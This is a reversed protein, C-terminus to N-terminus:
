KTSRRAVIENAYRVMQDHGLIAKRWALPIAEYGYHAGLLGGAIAAYTDTDGGVRVAMEIGEKFSKAHKLVYFAVYLSFEATGRMPWAGPDIPHVHRDRLMSMIRITLEDNLVAADIWAIDALAREPSDGCLLSVLVTVYLWCAQQAHPHTHTVEAMLYTARKAEAIWILRRDDGAEMLQNVYWLGLPASRMLAGNTGITNAQAKALRTPDGSLADKTTGGAGTSKGSWLLSKEEYVSARLLQYLHSTTLGNCALLSEALCATQESDDTPRGAPLIAGNGDHPWPNEYDFLLLDGHQAIIRAVEKPGKTEVPAGYSDGV